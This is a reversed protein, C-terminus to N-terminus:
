RTLEKRLADAADNLRAETEPNRKVRLEAKAPDFRKAKWGQRHNDVVTFDGYYYGDYYLCDDVYEICGEGVGDENEVALHHQYTGHVYALPGIMPGDHGWDNLNQTVKKRGHFLKLYVGSMDEGATASQSSVLRLEAM